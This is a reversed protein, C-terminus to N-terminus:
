PLRYEASEDLLPGLLMIVSRTRRAAEVDMSDLDLVAPRRIQLDNANLWTCEVGISTLVEVIRNVEEIRALRRLTTTGRNILSACLLAVGANKSSNVDVSGSLTRGGEVRLHTMQPRGVKVISRGVITELRQIMKLSLNQKGQEMRAIASQSTGLEAALQGQTWGKEVRADRLLLGVHEATEQTM